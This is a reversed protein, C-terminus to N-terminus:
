SSSEKTEDELSILTDSTNKDSKQSQEKEETVFKDDNVKLLEEQNKDFETVNSEEPSHQDLTDVKDDLDQENTHSKDEKEDYNENSCETSYDAEENSLFRRFVKQSHIVLVSFVAPSIKLTPCFILGLNNITM